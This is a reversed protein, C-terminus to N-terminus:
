EQPHGTAQRGSVLIWQQNDMQVRVQPDLLQQRADAKRGDHVPQRAPDATM